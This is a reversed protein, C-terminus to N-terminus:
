VTKAFPIDRSGLAIYLAPDAERPVLAVAERTMPSYHTAYALDGYQWADGHIILLGIDRRKMEARILSLRQELEERPIKQRDWSAMGRRLVPNYTYM